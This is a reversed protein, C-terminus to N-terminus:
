DAPQNLPGGDPEEGGFRLFDVFGEVGRSILGYAKDFGRRPGGYPDPIELPVRNEAFQSVLYLRAPAETGGVARLYDVHSMDMVMLYDHRIFDEPVVARSRLQGIAVGYSQAVHVAEPEPPLGERAMIGASDSAVILGERAAAAAFIGEAM